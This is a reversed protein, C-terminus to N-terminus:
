IIRSNMRSPWTSYMKSDVPIPTSGTTDVGIGAINNM